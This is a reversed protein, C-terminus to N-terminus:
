FSYHAGCVAHLGAFTHCSELSNDSKLSQNLASNTNIPLCAAIPENKLDQTQRTDSAVYKLAFFLWNCGM